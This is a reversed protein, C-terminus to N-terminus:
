QKLNKLTRFPDNYNNIKELAEDYKLKLYRRRGRTEIINLYEMDNIFHDVFKPPDFVSTKEKILEILKVKGMLPTDINIEGNKYLFNILTKYNERKKVILILDNYNEKYVGYEYYKDFFVGVIIIIEIALSFFIFILIDDFESNEIEKVKLQYEEKIYEIDQKKDQKLNDIRNQNEDISNNNNKIYDNYNERATIYNLPTEKLKNRLDNNNSLLKNNDEVLISIRSNYVNEVSDIKDELKSEIITIDKTTTTAFNEAGNLSTYFSGVLLLLSFFLGGIFRSNIKYKNKILEFSLNSLLYRKFLEFICLIVITIIISILSVNAINLYSVISKEIPPNLLFFAFFISGINSLYSTYKLLIDLNKNKNEFTENEVKDVLKTYKNIEM